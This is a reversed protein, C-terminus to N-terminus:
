GFGNKEKIAGETSFTTATNCVATIATRYIILPVSKYGKSGKRITVPQAHMKTSTSIKMGFSRLPIVASKATTPNTAASTMVKKRKPAWFIIDVLAIVGSIVTLNLLIFPFDISM